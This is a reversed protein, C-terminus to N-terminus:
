RSRGTLATGVGAINGIAFLWLALKWDGQGVFWLAGTASVAVALFMGLVALPAVYVEVTEPAAELLPHLQELWAETLLASVGASDQSLPQSAGSATM